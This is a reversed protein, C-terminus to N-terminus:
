SRQRIAQDVAPDGLQGLWTLLAPYTSPNAAVVARAEPHNAVIEQLRALPTAPNAAEALVPQQVVAAARAAAPASNSAADTAATEAATEHRAAAQEAIGPEASEAKATATAPQVPQVAGAAGPTAPTGAFAFGSAGSGNSSPLSRFHARSAAPLWLTALIAAPVVFTLLMIIPGFYGQEQVAWVIVLVLGLVFLLGAYGSPVIYALRADKATLRKAAIAGATLLLGFFLAIVQPVLGDSYDAAVHTIVSIVAGLALVASLGAAVTLFPQLATRPDTPAVASDGTLRAISPASVAAGFAMWFLLSFGPSLANLALTLLTLDEFLALLSLFGAGIALAVGVTRWRDSRKHVQVAIFVLLAPSALAMLTTLTGWGAFAAANTDSFAVWYRIIQVLAVVAALGAIGLTIYIWRRNRPEDVNGPAIEGRRPQAALLAGGLGFAVAPGLTAVSGAEYRGATVLHLVVYVLVLLAYPLNALLKLDQIKRYGVKPGFVGARWVYTLGLSLLSILTILIVDVRTAAKSPVWDGGTGYTWVMFLSMILALAAVGDRVYDSVPIGAFASRTRAPASAAPASVNAPASAGSM